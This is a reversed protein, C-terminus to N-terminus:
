SVAQLMCHPWDDDRGWPFSPGLGYVIKEPDTDSLEEHRTEHAPLRCHNHFTPQNTKSQTQEPQMLQQQIAM